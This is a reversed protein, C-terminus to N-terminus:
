RDGEAIKCEEMAETMEHVEAPDNHFLAELKEVIEITSSQEFRRQLVDDMCALMISKVVSFDNKCSLFVNIVDQCARPAPYEGLTQELVGSLM